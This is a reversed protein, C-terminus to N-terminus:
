LTVKEDFVSEQTDEEQPTAPATDVSPSVTITLSESKYVKGQYSLEVAEITVEGAKKPQLIYDIIIESVTMMKAISINQSRASSLIIFDKDLGPLKITPNDLGRSSSIVVRYNLYNNLAAENKDVSAKIKVPAEDAQACVGLSIGVFFLLQLAAKSLRLM